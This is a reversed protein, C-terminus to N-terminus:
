QGVKFFPTLFPYNQFNEVNEFKLPKTLFEFIISYQSAKDKDSQNISSTLIVVHINSQLSNTTLTDLFEWGNMEPMNIDLLLLYNKEKVNNELLISLADQANNFVKAKPLGSKEVIKNILMCIIKDDDIIWTEYVM